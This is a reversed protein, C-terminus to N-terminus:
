DAIVKMPNTRTRLLRFGGAGPPGIARDIFRRASRISRSNSFINGGRVMRFDSSTVTEAEMQPSDNSDTFRNHCWEAANGHMDFLGFANPLLKAVPMYSDVTNEGYWAYMPLLDGTDGYGRTTTAGGRCAYEWETETPLRYGTKTLPNPKVQMGDEFEGQKNRAYCWQDAPINEAQSLWTCFAAAEYWSIGTVPLDPDLDPKLAPHSRKRKPDATAELYRRFQGVTVETMGIDFSHAIHAPRRKELGMVNPEGPGSGMLFDIPGDICVMTQGLSNVYWKRGRAPGSPEGRQAQAPPLLAAARWQGLLWHTAAHVSASPDTQYAELLGPLLTERRARPLATEPFHGLGLWLAARVTDDPETRLRVVLAEPDCGTQAFRDILYSRVRPNPSMKLLPWLREGAGLRLLALALNASQAASENPEKGPNEALRELLSALSQVTRSPDRQLRRVLVPFSQPPALAVAQALLDPQESAFDGVVEAVVAKTAPPTRRKRLVALLSPTLRDKIPRLAEMWQPVQLTPQGVLQEAVWDELGEWRPSSPDYAALAAAAHFRQQSEGRRSELLLDWLVPVLEEQHPKLAERLVEFHGPDTQLMSELLPDVQRPDVALLGLRARLQMECSTNPDDLVKELRPDTWQRQDTLDRLIAPTKAIDADLLNRVLGEARTAAHEQALHGRLFFAAFGLVALLVGALAIGKLHKRAAAGMMQRQADTWGRPATLLRISLWETLSPLQRQEPKAQWLAGREALRLEARGRRTEKQKRTLWERISPVLYDHTLQYYKDDAPLEVANEKKGEPDTPTILRVESDIIKVLEDFDSSRGAYGSAALLEAHSRMHGKIQTDFEPLMVRLVARVADQHLRHTPPATAATFTEELFTVGVGGVGGIARLTAPQWPRNKVMEAFLALRVPIIRGEGALGEVSADLFSAQDDSLSGDVPLASYARGFDALVKRSHRLDFLDMGASNDDERLPVELDDRFFRTVAMWFDDRVLVLAQMREGDCHRLARVLPPNEKPRRGHLWQEFQDLVVVVKHGPPLGRGRRLADFAAVIDLGKELAPCARHLGRLLRAETEEPTAEIYVPVVHPLLRPLLGAKVLSSKGCGSPGYLLGIPFTHETDTCELRSKWFYVVRPLGDRERSGPLLDLFFDADRADFSHLGRPVIRIPGPDGPVAAPPPATVAVPESASGTPAKAPNNALWARLDVALDAATTYRDRLQRAAAKLCIRELEIPLAPALQRPPAVDTNAIRELIQQHTGEFPRRGTLLEYFVIGLSFIDSRGDVRHSERRAQEPSMYAATGAFEPGKGYDEDRHALGFDTLYPKDSRDILINAPKVDRHKIRNEHAHAYALADALCAVLRAAEAPRYGRGNKIHWKLDRGDIFEYVVFCLGDATYGIDHVPVIHSHKLSAVVRAERIYADIGGLLEVLKHRPVKIAVDRGLDEDRAKYVVGFAGAGLDATIRYRGLFAPRAPPITRGAPLDVTDVVPDSEPAQGRPNPGPTLASFVERVLDTQNDFRGLYEDLDLAERARSRYFFEVQLLARLLERQEGSALNTVLYDEIRPRNGALWAQDFRTCAEVIQQQDDVPLHASQPSPTPMLRDM